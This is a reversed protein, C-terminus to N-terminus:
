GQEDGKKRVMANRKRTRDHRDIEHDVHRKDSAPAQTNKMKRATRESNAEKATARGIEREL